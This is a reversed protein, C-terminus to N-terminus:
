IIPQVRRTRNTSSETLYILYNNMIKIDFVASNPITWNGLQTGYQDYILISSTEFAFWFRGCDDVTVRAAGGTMDSTTFVFTQKWKTYNSTASFSYLSRDNYSTVYFFSDNVRWMGHPCAFTTFQLFSFNYCIPTGSTRNLFVLSNNECSTVVMTQGNSLFMIARIGYTSTLIHGIVTLNGSDVVTMSSDHPAIYYAGNFYTITMQTSNPLLTQSIRALSIPDFRDLYNTNMEVTVLYGNNDIVADRPSAVTKITPTAAKLTNILTTINPMCCQSSNPLLNKPFYLRAGPTAQLHYTAPFTRFLECTNNSFCNVASYSSLAVCLCHTCSGSIIQSQNWFCDGTLITNNIVQIRISTVLGISFFSYFIFLFLM